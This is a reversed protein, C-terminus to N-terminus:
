NLAFNPSYFQIFINYLYKNNRKFSLQLYRNSYNWNNIANERLYYLLSKIIVYKSFGLNM